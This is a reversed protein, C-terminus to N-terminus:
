GSVSESVMSRFERGLASEQWGLPKSWAQWQAADAGDLLAIAPTKAPAAEAAIGVRFLLSIGCALVSRKSWNKSTM